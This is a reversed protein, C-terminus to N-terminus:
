CDSNTWHTGWAFHAWKLNIHSFFPTATYRRTLSVNWFSTWGGTKAPMLYPFFIARFLRHMLNWYVTNSFISWCNHLWSIFPPFFLLLFIQENIELLAPSRSMIDLACCVNWKATYMKEEEANLSNHSNCLFAHLNGPSAYMIQTRIKCYYTWFVLHENKSWLHRLIHIIHDTWLKICIHM